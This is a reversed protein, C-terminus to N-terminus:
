ISSRWARLLRHAPQQSIADIRSVMSCSDQPTSRSLGTIVHGVRGDKDSIYQVNLSDCSKGHRGCFYADGANDPRQIKVIFGDIYLIVNYHDRVLHNAPYQLPTALAVLENALPLWPLVTTCATTITVV